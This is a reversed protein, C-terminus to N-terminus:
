ANNRRGWADQLFILAGLNFWFFTHLFEYGILMNLAITLAGLFLAWFVERQPKTLDNLTRLFTMFLTGFLFAVLLFGFAGTEAFISIIDNGAAYNPNELPNGFLFEGRYTGYQGIGIGDLPEETIISLLIGLNEVRDTFAQAQTGQELTTRFVPLKTLAALGPPVLLVIVAAFVFRHQKYIRDFYFFIVALSILAFKSQSLVLGLMGLLVFPWYRRLHQPRLMLLLPTLFAVSFQQPEATTGALRPLFSATPWVGLSGGFSHALIENTSRFGTWYLILLIFAIVISAAGSYLLLRELGEWRVIGTKLAYYVAITTAFVAIYKSLESLFRVLAFTEASMINSMSSLALVGFFLLTVSLFFRMLPSARFSGKLTVALLVFVLSFWGLMRQFPLAVGAVEPIRLWPFAYLLAMAAVMLAIFPPAEWFVRLREALLVRLQPWAIRKQAFGQRLM